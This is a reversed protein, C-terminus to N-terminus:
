AARPSEAVRRRILAEAEADRPLAAREVQALRKFLDDIAQRDRDNM